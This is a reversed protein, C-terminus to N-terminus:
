ESRLSGSEQVTLFLYRNRLGGFGHHKTVATHASLCVLLLVVSITDLALFIVCKLSQSHGGGDGGVM